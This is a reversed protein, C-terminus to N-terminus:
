KCFLSFNSGCLADNAFPEIQFGGFTQVELIEEEELEYRKNKNLHRGHIINSIDSEVLKLKFYYVNIM